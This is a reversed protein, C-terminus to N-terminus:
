TTERTTAAAARARARSLDDWTDCDEGWGGSDAVAGVDVGELLARAPVGAPDGVRALSRELASRRWASALPNRRGSADVLVACEHADLEALLPAIAGHIWPLDGALVLLAGATTLRLGAAIAAVPGAGPPEERAWRVGEPRERRPGVVVVVGAEPVAAVVHEVLTRGAVVQAPKDAGDLRRAAGGALVIADM